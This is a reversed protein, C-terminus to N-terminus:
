VAVREILDVKKNDSNDVSQSVGRETGRRLFQRACAAFDNNNALLDPRQGHHHDHHRSSPRRDWNWFSASVCM